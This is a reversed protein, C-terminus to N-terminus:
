TVLLMLLLMEPYLTSAVVPAMVASAPEGKAVPESGLEPAISGVPRNRYTVFSLVLLVTGLVTEPYVMSGAVPPSVCIAPEGKAAPIQGLEAM